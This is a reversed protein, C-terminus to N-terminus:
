HRIITRLPRFMYCKNIINNFTQQTQCYYIYIYALILIYCCLSVSEM